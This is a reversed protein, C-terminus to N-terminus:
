LGQKQILKKSFLNSKSLNTSSKQFFVSTEPICETHIKPRNENFLCYIGVSKECRDNKPCNNEQDRWVERFLDWVEDFKM